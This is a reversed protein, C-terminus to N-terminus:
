QVQWGDLSTPGTTFGLVLSASYGEANPLATGSQMILGPAGHTTTLAQWRGRLRAVLPEEDLQFQPLWQGSSNQYYRVNIIFLASSQNGAGQYFSVARDAPRTASPIADGASISWQTVPKGQDPSAVLGAQTTVQTQVTNGAITYQLVMLVPFNAAHIGPTFSLLLVSVAAAAIRACARGLGALNRIMCWLSTAAESVTWGSRLIIM